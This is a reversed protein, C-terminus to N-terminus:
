TWDFGIETAISNYQHHQQLVAERLRYESDRGLETDEKDWTLEALVGQMLTAAQPELSPALTNLKNLSAQFDAWAPATDDKFRIRMHMDLANQAAIVFAKWALLNPTQDVRLQDIRQQQEVLRHQAEVTAAQQRAAELRQTERQRRRKIRRQNPPLAWIAAGGSALGGALFALGAALLIWRFLPTIEIPSLSTTLLAVGSALITAALATYQASKWPGMSIMSPTPRTWQCPASRGHGAGFIHWGKLRPEIRNRLRNGPNFTVM